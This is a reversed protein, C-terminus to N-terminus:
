IEEMVKTFQDKLIPAIRNFQDPQGRRLWYSPHYSVIVYVSWSSSIKILGHSLDGWRITYTYKKPLTSSYADRGLLLLIKPKVVKIEPTLWRKKCTMLEPKHGVRNNPPHCKLANAIYVEEKALPIEALMGELMDGCPGVFPEGATVEQIGPSQGIIMIPSTPDGYSPVHERGLEPCLTCSAVADYDTATHTIPPEVMRPKRKKM